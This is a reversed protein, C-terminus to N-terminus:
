EYKEKNSIEPITSIKICKLYMMNEAETGGNSRNKKVWM